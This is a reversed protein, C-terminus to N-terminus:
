DAQREEHSYDIRKLESVVARHGDTTAIAEIPRMGGLVTNPAQLWADADAASGLVSAALERVAHEIATLANM